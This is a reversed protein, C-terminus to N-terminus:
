ELAELVEEYGDESVALARRLADRTSEPVEDLVAHLVARNRAADSVLTNRLQVRNGNQAADDSGGWDKGPETIVVPPSAEPVLTTDEAPPTTEPPAEGASPAVLMGPISVGGRGEILVVLLKLKEDLRQTILEVRRADGKNALYAIEAVRRDALRACLRAKGMQSFTLTLRTQETALKVSYLPSDPMSSDAAAVTGGGGLVLVLVIAMVTAWRPFWGWSTRSKRAAREQLASRFQYRARAKFDPRPQIASAERAALATELLPKLEAAQEPYRQLCQELSEDKVLLRELCENLINDFEKNNM